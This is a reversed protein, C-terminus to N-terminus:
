CTKKAIALLTSGKGFRSSASLGARIIRRLYSSLVVRRVPKVARSHCSDLLRMFSKAFSSPDPESRLHVVSFGGEVLIATLTHRTFAYLHRPTDLGLWYRGLLMRDVSNWNPVTLIFHGKPHLLRRANAILELPSHCHELVDWATIVDYDSSFCLTSLDTGTQVPIDIKENVYAAISLNPEYGHIEWGCAKMVMMFFGNGCGLDLLRGRRLGTYSILLRKRHAVKRGIRFGQPLRKCKEITPIRHPCYSQPYFMGISARTPRPNLFILGCSACKVLFFKDCHGYGYGRLTLVHTLLSKGCLNCAVCEVKYDFNVSIEM